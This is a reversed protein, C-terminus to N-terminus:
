IKHFIEYDDIQKTNNYDGICMQILKRKKEKEPDTLGLAHHKLSDWSGNDFSYVDIDLKKNVASMITLMLKNYSFYVKNINNLLVSLQINATLKDIDLDDENFMLNHLKPLKLETGIKYLDHARQAYLADECLEIQCNHIQRVNDKCVVLVEFKKPARMIPVVCSKIWDYTGWSIVMNREKM